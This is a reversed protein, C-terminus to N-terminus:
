KPPSRLVALAARYGAAETTHGYETAIRLSIELGSIAASLIGPRPKWSWAALWARATTENSITM